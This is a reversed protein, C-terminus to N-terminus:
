MSQAKEVIFDAIGTISPYDFLLTPPLNIGPLDQSLEDRLTVATNSTLGAQMLPTDVEIDEDDGVIGMAIEKIKATVVEATLSSNVALASGGARPARAAAKEGGGGAAPPPPATALKVQASAPFKWQAAGGGGQAAMMAQMQAM